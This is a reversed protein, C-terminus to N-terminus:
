VGSFYEQMRKLTEKAYRRSIQIVTGDRLIIRERNFSQIFDLNVAESQGVQIMQQSFNKEVYASFKERASFVYAEGDDRFLKFVHDEYSMHTIKATPILVTEIEGDRGRVKAAVTRKREEEEKACYDLCSFIEEKVMPKNLYRYLGIKYGDRLYTDYNSVIIVPVHTNRERIEVALQFGDMSAMQIDLFFGSFSVGKEIDALLDEASSYYEVQLNPLSREARYERVIRCFEEYYMIQDDCFAIIM